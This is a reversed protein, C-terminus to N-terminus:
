EAEAKKTRTRKPTPKEDRGDIASRLVAGLQTIAPSALGDLKAQEAIGKAADRERRKQNEKVAEDDDALRHVANVVNGKADFSPPNQKLFDAIADENILVVRGHRNRFYPM